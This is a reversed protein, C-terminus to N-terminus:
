YPSNTGPSEFRVVTEDPKAYGLKERTLREVTNPDHLLADVQLQLEKSKEEEAQLQQNMKFIQSRMRVNEQIVPLYCMGILLLVALVVLGIVVNTLKSWIGLDVNVRRTFCARSV